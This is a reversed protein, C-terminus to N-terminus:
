SMEGLSPSSVCERVKRKLQEGYKEEMERKRAEVRDRGSLSSALEAWSLSSSSLVRAQQARSSHMGHRHWATPVTSHAPRPMTRLCLCRM